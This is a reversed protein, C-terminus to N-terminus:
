PAFQNDSPELPHAPDIWSDFWLQTVFARITPEPVRANPKYYSTRCRIELRYHAQEGHRNNPDELDINPLEEQLPPAWRLQLRDSWRSYYAHQCRIRKRLAFLDDWRSPNFANMAVGHILAFRHEGPSGVGAMVEFASCGRRIETIPRWKGDAAFVFERGVRGRGRVVGGVELASRPAAEELGIGMEANITVRAKQGPADGLPAEFLMIPPAPVQPGRQLALRDSAGRFFGLTWDPKEFGQESGQKLLSVLTDGPAVTRIKLGNEISKSFGEDDMILASDILDAFNATSPRAGPAFYNKLTERGRRSM